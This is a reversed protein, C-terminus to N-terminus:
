QSKLADVAAKWYGGAAYEAETRRLLIPLLKELYADQKGLEFLRQFQGGGLFSLPDADGKVLGFFNQVFGWRSLWADINLGPDLQQLAAIALWYGGYSATDVEGTIEDLAHISGKSTVSQIHKDFTEQSGILAQILTMGMAWMDSSQTKRPLVPGASGAVINPAQISLHFPLFAYTGADLEVPVLGAVSSLGFDILRPQNNDERDILINDPKIDGHVFDVTRQLQYLTEALKKQVPRTKQVALAAEGQLANYRVLQSMMFARRSRFAPKFLACKSTETFSERFHIETGFAWVSPMVARGLALDTQQQEQELIFLVMAERPDDFVKYIHKPEDDLTYICGLQGTSALRAFPPNTRNFHGPSHILPVASGSPVDILTTAALILGRTEDIQLGRSTARGFMDLAVMWPDRAHQLMAEGREM